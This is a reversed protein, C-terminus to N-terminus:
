KVVGQKARVTSPVVDTSYFRNWGQFHLIHIIATCECCIYEFSASLALRYLFKNYNEFLFCGTPINTFFDLAKVRELRLKGNDDEDM